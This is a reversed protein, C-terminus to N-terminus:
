RHKTTIFLNRCFDSEPISKYDTCKLVSEVESIGILRMYRRLKNKPKIEIKM